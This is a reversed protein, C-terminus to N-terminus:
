SQNQHSPMSNIPVTSWLLQASRGGSERGKDTPSQWIWFLADEVLVNDEKVTQPARVLRLVVQKYQGREEETATEASKQSGVGGGGKTM